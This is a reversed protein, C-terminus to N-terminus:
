PEETFSTITGDDAIDVFLKPESGHGDPHFAVRWKGNLRREIFMDPHDTNLSRNKGPNIDGFIVNIHTKRCLITLIGQDTQLYDEQENVDGIYTLMDMKIQM